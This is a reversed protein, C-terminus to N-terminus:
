NLRIYHKEEKTLFNNDLNEDGTPILEAMKYAYFLDRCINSGKPPLYKSDIKLEEPVDNM